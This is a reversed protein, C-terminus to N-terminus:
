LHSGGLSVTKTSPRPRGKGRRGGRRSRKVFSIPLLSALCIFGSSECLANSQLVPSISCSPNSVTFIPYNSITSLDCASRFILPIVPTLTKSHGHLSVTQAPRSTAFTIFDTSSRTSRFFEPISILQNCSVIANRSRVRYEYCSVIANRSRVRYEYRVTDNHVGTRFLTGSYQCSVTFFATLAAVIAAVLTWFKKSKLLSLFKNM